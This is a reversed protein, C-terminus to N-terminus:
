DDTSIYISMYAFSFIIKSVWGALYFHNIDLQKKM